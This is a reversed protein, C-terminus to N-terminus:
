IFKKVELIFNEIYMFDQLHLDNTRLLVCVPSNKTFSSTIYGIFTTPFCFKQYVYECIFSLTHMFFFLYVYKKMM